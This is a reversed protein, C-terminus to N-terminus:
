RPLYGNSYTTIYFSGGAVREGPNQPCKYVLSVKAALLQRQLSIFIVLKHWASKPHTSNLYLPQLYDLLNSCLSILFCVHAILDLHEAWHAFFDSWHYQAALFSTQIMFCNFFKGSEGKKVVTQMQLSCSCCIAGMSCVGTHLSLRLHVPHFHTYLPSNNFHQHRGSQCRVQTQWLWTNYFSFKYPTLLLSKVM